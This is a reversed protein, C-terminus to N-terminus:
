AQAETWSMRGFLNASASGINQAMVTIIDPGDPYISVNAATAGGSLISTGMDRVLSLDQQTTTYNTSGGSTNLFFGFVSEGGSITTGATHLVYQALSSGGQSQWSDAASVKGNLVLTILFQGNSFLDMQRLVMQMRNIIERTGLTSASVGNSVTPAIRISMLANNVGNTIALTSVM